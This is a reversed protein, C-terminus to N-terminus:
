KYRRMAELIPNSATISDLLPGGEIIEFAVKHSRIKATSTVLGGLSDGCKEVVSKVWSSWFEYCAAIQTKTYDDAPMAALAIEWRLEPSLRSLSYRLFRKYLKM